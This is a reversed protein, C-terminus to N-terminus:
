RGITHSKAVWVLVGLADTGQLANSPRRDTDHLAQWLLFSLVKPGADRGVGRLPLFQRHHQGGHHVTEDHLPHRRQSPRARREPPVSFFQISFLDEKALSLHADPMAAVLRPVYTTQTTLLTLVCRQRLIYFSHKSATLICLVVVIPRCAYM